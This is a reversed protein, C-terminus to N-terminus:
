DIMTRLHGHETSVALGRPEFDHHSERRTVRERVVTM